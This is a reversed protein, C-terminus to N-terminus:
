GAVHVRGDVVTVAVAALSRGAAPGEVCLGDSCRFVACHHVCMVSGPGALLFGSGPANLPLAFHPCLNVYAQVQAGQRYLVLGASRLGAPPQWEICGGDPVADLAVLATGVPPPVRLVRSALAHVPPAAASSSM